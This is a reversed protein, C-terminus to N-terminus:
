KSFLNFFNEFFGQKKTKKKTKISSSEVSRYFDIGAACAYSDDNNFSILESVLKKKCLNYNNSFLQSGGGFFILKPKLLSNLNKYNSDQFVVLELIEDIRAEIVKKLM